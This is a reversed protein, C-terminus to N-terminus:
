QKEELLNRGMSVARRMCPEEFLTDMAVLNAMQMLLTGNRAYSVLSRVRVHTTDLHMQYTDHLELAATPAQGSEVLAHTRASHEAATNGVITDLLLALRELTRVTKGM